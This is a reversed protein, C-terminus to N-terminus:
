QMMMDDSAEAEVERAIDAEEEGEDSYSMRQKGSTASSALQAAELDRSADGALSKALEVLEALMALSAEDLDDDSAMIDVDGGAQSGYSSSGNGQSRPQAEPQAEQGLGLSQLFKSSMWGGASSSNGNSGNGNSAKSGNSTGNSRGNGNTTRGSYSAALQDQAASSDAQTHLAPLCLPAASCGAGGAPGCRACLVPLAATANLFWPACCM